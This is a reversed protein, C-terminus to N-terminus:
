VCVVKMMRAANPFEETLRIDRMTILGELAGEKDVLLLKEVKSEELIASAKELSTEAPATVLEKTMVESVKLDDGGRFKLDRRTLIGVVKERALVPFGTVGHAAMVERAEGVSADPSLTVPDHIVGHASRKVVDVEHVQEAISGNRHIVGIGGQQALAIALASGTVTDMAASSVPINIVVNRSFRSHTEAETPLIDSDQPILLVDDFTLALPVDMAWELSSVRLSALLRGVLPVVM